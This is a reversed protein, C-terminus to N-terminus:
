GEARMADRRRWVRPRCRGSSRAQAIYSQPIEAMCVTMVVATKGIKKRRTGAAPSGSLLASAIQPYEFVM